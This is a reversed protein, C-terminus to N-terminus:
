SRGLEVWDGQGSLVVERGNFTATEALPAYLKVHAEPKNTVELRNGERLFELEELVKDSQAVMNSNFWAARGNLVVVRQPVRDPGTRVFAFGAPIGEPALTAGPLSITDTVGGTEVTLSTLADQSRLRLDAPAEPWLLWGLRLPVEARIRAVLAPAPVLHGYDESYWGQIGTRGNNEPRAGTILDWQLAPGTTALLFHSEGSRAMWRDESRTIETGPPFHFYCDLDHTGGGLIDDVVLWYDPKVFVVTRRHVVAGPWRAYGNHSAVALDLTRLSAWRELRVDPINRWKFVDIPRAQDRGDVVVTNHARTSRFFDRWPKSSTYVFTGPDILWRKGGAACLVQLADAHGHGCAHMGQPGADFLLIRSSEDWGSRMIALGADPFLRSVEGPSERPLQEFEAAAVPGFLWLAEEPLSGAVWRFDGRRFYLAAVGLSARQSRPDRPALALVRGGDADGTMWDQGDVGSTHLTFELMRQLRERYSAPFPFGNRDALIAAYLFFDVAYRHYYSSQERHAGDPFVQNEIEEVVIRRGTDYWDHAGKLEPFMSGIVFLAFGEGLLHTNPSFYTSLSSAVFDAHRGISALMAGLRAGDLAASGLLLHIAWVWSWARFAVELSSAWNIGRLHPNQEEWDLWQGVCEQAYREEGLLFFGQGLTVFHQHRNPEWVVKSDGVKEFDLYPVRSWHQLGSETGHVLDKRWGIGAGCEVEPYSFIAFRRACVAEAARRIEALRAPFLQRYASRIEEGDAARFYFRDRGALYEVLLEAARGPEAHLVAEALEPDGIKNPDLARIWPRKRAGSGDWTLQTREWLVRARHVSRRRIEELDMEQLRQIKELLKV